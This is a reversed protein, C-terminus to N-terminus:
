KVGSEKHFRKKFNEMFTKSSSEGNEDIVYFSLCIIFKIFSSGIRWGIFFILALLAYVILQDIM